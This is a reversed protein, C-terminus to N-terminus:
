VFDPLEWIRKRFLCAERKEGTESDNVVISIQSHNSARQVKPLSTQILYGYISQKEGAAEKVRNVELIRVPEGDIFVEIDEGTLSPAIDIINLASLDSPSPPFRLGLRQSLQKLRKLSM